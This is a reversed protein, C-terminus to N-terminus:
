FLLVCIANCSTVTIFLPVSHLHSCGFYVFQHLSYAIYTQLTPLHALLAFPIIAYVMYCGGIVTTIHLQVNYNEERTSILKYHLLLISLLEWSQGISFTM